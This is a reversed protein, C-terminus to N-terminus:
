GCESTVCQADFVGFIYGTVAAEVEPQMIDALIVYGAQKGNHTTAVPVLKVGYRAEVLRAAQRFIPMASEGFHIELDIRPTAKRTATAM